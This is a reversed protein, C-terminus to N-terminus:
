GLLNVSGGTTNTSPQTTSPPASGGGGHHRHHRHGHTATTGTGSGSQQASQLATQLQKFITQAQSLDGSTLAQGLAAFDSAIPNTSSAGGTGSASSSGGQLKELIGFAQQAGQLNGSQLSNALDAFALNSVSSAAPQSAANTLSVPSISM